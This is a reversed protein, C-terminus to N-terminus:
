NNESWDVKEAFFMLKKNMGVSVKESDADPSQFENAIRCIKLNLVEISKILEENQKSLKKSAALLDDYKKNIIFEINM